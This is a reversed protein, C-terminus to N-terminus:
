SCIGGKGNTKAQKAFDSQELTVEILERTLRQEPTFQLFDGTAELTSHQALVSSSKIKIKM